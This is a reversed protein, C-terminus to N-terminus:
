KLEPQSAEKDREKSPPTVEQKPGRKNKKNKKKPIISSAQM